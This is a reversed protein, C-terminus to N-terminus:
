AANKYSILIHSPAFLIASVTLLLSRSAIGSFLFMASPIISLSLARFLSSKRFCFIWIACYLAALVSDVAIYAAFIKKSQFGLCTGLINFIMFCFCGFRGIQEITEVFKNSWINKFGERCKAAFVINPVLIAAVVALGFINFFSM